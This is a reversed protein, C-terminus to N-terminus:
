IFNSSNSSQFYSAIFLTICSISKRIYAGRLFLLLQLLQLLQYSMLNPIVLISLNRYSTIKFLLYYYTTIKFCSSEYVTNICEIGVSGNLNFLLFSLKLSILFKSIALLGM